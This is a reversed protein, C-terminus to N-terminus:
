RTVPAAACVGYDKALKEVLFQQVGGANRKEKKGAVRVRNGPKIAAIDGILAYTQRDGQGQLELGNAGSEACGTLAHGHHVAFYIGVGVGVGVAVLVAIVGAETGKTVKYGFQARATATATVLLACVAVEALLRRLGTKM